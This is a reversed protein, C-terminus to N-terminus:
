DAMEPDNLAAVAADIAKTGPVTTLVKRDKAPIRKGDINYTYSDIAEDIVVSKDYDSFQANWIGNERIAITYYKKAM